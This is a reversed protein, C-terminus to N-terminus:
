CRCPVDGVRQEVLNGCLLVLSGHVLQRLQGLQEDRDSLCPPPGQGYCPGGIDRMIEAGGLEGEAATQVYDRVATDTGGLKSQRDNM